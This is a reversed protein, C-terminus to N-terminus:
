RTDIIWGLVTLMESPSGEALAKKVAILPDRPLPDDVRTPRGMCDIALLAANRGRKWHQDSLLPFVNFIDDIYVDAAGGDALQPDVLLTRAPAFPIEAEELRPEQDLLANYPSYLEDPNWDDTQLLTNSIDAICESLASFESPHPSGGFTMRLSMLALQESDTSHNGTETPTKLGRLTVISRRASEWDFHIRRYAAKLDYKAIVLPTSPYQTRYYIIAHLLRKLAWGYLCELLKEHQVRSNVSTGSSFAFSQDHTVRWKTNIRGQENITNQEVVGMPSVIAGPIRPILSIPIVLQWGQLVEEELNRLLPEPNKTASKHNGYDIAEAVDKARLRDELEHLPLHFGHQLMSRVRPWLPHNDFVKTLLHIPRFESGPTTISPHQTAEGATTQEGSHQARPPLVKRIKKIDFNSSILIDANRQASKLSLTFDFEPEPFPAAPEWTMAARISLLFRQHTSTVTGDIGPEDLRPWCNRLEPPSPAAAALTDSISTAGYTAQEPSIEWRPNQKIPSDRIASHSRDAAQGSSVSSIEGDQAHQDTAYTNDGVNERTNKDAQDLPRPLPKSVIVERPIQDHLNKDISKGNNQTQPSSTDGDQQM